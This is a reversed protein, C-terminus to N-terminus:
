KVRRLSITKFQTCYGNKSIYGQVKDCTNKKKNYGDFMNFNLCNYCRYLEDPKKQVRYKVEKKTMKKMKLVWM